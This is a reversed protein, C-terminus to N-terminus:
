TQFCSKCHPDEHMTTLCESKERDWHLDTEHSINKKRTVQINRGRQNTICYYKLTSQDCVVCTSSINYLRTPPEAALYARNGKRTVWPNCIVCLLARSAQGRSLRTKEGKFEIEWSTTINRRWNERIKVKDVDLEGELGKCFSRTGPVV